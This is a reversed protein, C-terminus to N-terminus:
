IERASDILYKFFSELEPPFAELRKQLTSVNDHFTFGELLEHVVLVVWLFVGQAHNVVTNVFQSYAPDTAALIPFQRHENFKDTVYNQIDGRTLDELRLYGDSHDIFADEFESWPRSSVCLKIDQFHDLQRITNLLDRTTRKREQYEDLGDVFLCIKVGLKKLHSKNRARGEDHMIRISNHSIDINDPTENNLSTDGGHPVNYIRAYEDSGSASIGQQSNVIRIVHQYTEMLGDLDWSKSEHDYHLLPNTARRVPLILSPCQRLIEFLISRLLGEQSKQLTSGANWFYFKALVLRRDGAWVRLSNRTRDNNYLFKMLTSKGSGPKGYIWFIGDKNELWDKFKVKGHHHSPSTYDKFLWEFTKSHATEIDQHRAAINTFHLAELLQQDAQTVGAATKLNEVAHLLRTSDRSILGLPKQELLDYQDFKLNIQLLKFNHHDESNHPRLAELLRSELAKLDEKREIRLRVNTAELRTIIDALYGVGERTKAAETQLFNIGERTRMIENSVM